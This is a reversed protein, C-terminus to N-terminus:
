EGWTGSKPVSFSAQPRYSRRACIEHNKFFEAKNVILLWIKAKLASAVFRGFKWALSCLLFTLRGPIPGLPRLGDPNKAM